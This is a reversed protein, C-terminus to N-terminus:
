KVEYSYYPVYIVTGCKINNANTLNNIEMVENIYERRSNYGWESYEEAITWLTDGPAISVSTYYKHLIQDDQANVKGSFTFISFFMIFALLLVFSSAICTLKIKRIIRAQKASSYKKFRRYKKDIYLVIPRLLAAIAHLVFDEITKSISLTNNKMTKTNM